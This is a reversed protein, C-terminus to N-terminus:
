LTWHVLRRKEYKKILYSIIFNNQKSTIIIASGWENTLM